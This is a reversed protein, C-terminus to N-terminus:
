VRDSRNRQRNVLVATVIVAYLGVLAWALGARSPYADNFFTIIGIPVFVLAYFRLRSAYTNFSFVSSKRPDADLDDLEDNPSM